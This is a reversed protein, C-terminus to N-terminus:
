KVAECKGRVCTSTLSVTTGVYLTLNGQCSNVVMENSSSTLTNNNNATMDTCLLMDYQLLWAFAAVM